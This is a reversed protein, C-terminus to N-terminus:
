KRVNVNVNGMPHSVFMQHNESKADPVVMMDVNIDTM